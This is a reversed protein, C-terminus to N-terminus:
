QNLHQTLSNRIAIASSTSQRVSDSSSSADVQSDHPVTWENRGFANEVVMRARSQQYNFYQQQKTLNGTDPFPKM